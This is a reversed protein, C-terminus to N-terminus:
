GPIPMEVGIEALLVEATQRDVGPITDLLAVAAAWAMPALRTPLPAVPGAPSAAPQDADPAPPGAPTQAQVQAAIHAACGAIQADLVDIPALHGARLFRHHDRVRGTLAQELAARKARLRGQAPDALAAPDAQGAVVQELMARASVGLVDTAV